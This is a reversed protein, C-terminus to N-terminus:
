CEEVTFTSFLSLSIVEVELAELRDRIAEVAVEWKVTVVVFQNLLFTMASSWSAEVLHLRVASVGDVRIQVSSAKRHRLRHCEYPWSIVVEVAETVWVM